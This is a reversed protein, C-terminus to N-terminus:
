FNSHKQKKIKKFHVLLILCAIIIAILVGIILATIIPDSLDFSITKYATNGALDTVYITLNHAGYSLNNLTISSTTTVNTQQDLSYTILSTAKNINFSVQIEKSKGIQWSSKLNSIIPAATDVTFATASTGMNGATDNVYVVLTHYGDKLDKLTTNGLVTSNLQNDLSYRIFSTSRDLTFNLALNASNYSENKPSLISISPPTNYVAFSIPSFTYYYYGVFDANWWFIEMIVQIQHIGDSLNSVSLLSDQSRPLVMSPFDTITGNDISYKFKSTGIGAFERYPSIDYSVSFNMPLLTQYGTLNNPSTVTITPPSVFFNDWESNDWNTIQANAVTIFSTQTSLLLLTSIFIVVLTAQKM